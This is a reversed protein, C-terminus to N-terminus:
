QKSQQLNAMVNVASDATLTLERRWEPYGAMSVVIKHSGPTLSIESPTNGFYKGDIQIEAGDPTSTFHCRVSAAASAVQARPPPATSEAEAGAQNQESAAPKAAPRSKPTRVSAGSYPYFHPKNEGTADPVVITLGNSHRRAGYYEKVPLPACNSWSGDVDCSITYKRAWDDEVQMVVKGAPTKGNACADSYNKLDCEKPFEASADTPTFESSRILLKLPYPQYPTLRAHLPGAFLVGLLLAPILRLLRHRLAV